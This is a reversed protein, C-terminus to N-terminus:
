HIQVNGVYKRCINVKELSSVIGTCHLDRNIDLSCDYSLLQDTTFMYYMDVHLVNFLTETYPQSIKPYPSGMVDSM